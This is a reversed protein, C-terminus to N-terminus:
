IYNQQYVTTANLSNSCSLLTIFNIEETVRNSFILESGPTDGLSISFYNTRLMMKTKQGKWPPYIRGM